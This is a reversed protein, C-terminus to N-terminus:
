CEGTSRWGTANCAVPGGEDLVYRGGIIEHGDAKSYMASWHLPTLAILIPTGHTVARQFDLSRDRVNLVSQERAPPGGPKSWHGGLLHQLGLIRVRATVADVDRPDYVVRLVDRGGANWAPPADPALVELTVNITWGVLTPPKAEHQRAGLCGAGTALLVTCGSLSAIRLWGAQTM